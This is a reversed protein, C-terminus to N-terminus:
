YPVRSRRAAPPEEDRRRGRRALDAFLARLPRSLEELADGGDLALERLLAALRSGGPLRLGETQRRFWELKEEETPGALWRRRREREREVWREIEEPTPGAESGRRAARSSAWRQTEEATPGDLWAARRSREREAWAEIEAPTAPSSGEQSDPRADHRRAWALTELETPGKRWAQRRLHEREAWSDVEEQTPAPPEWRPGFTPSDDGPM